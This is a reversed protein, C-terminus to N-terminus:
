GKVSQGRPSTRIPSSQWIWWTLGMISLSGLMVPGCVAAFLRALEGAQWAQGQMAASASQLLPAVFGLGVLIGVAAVCQAFLCIAIELFRPM